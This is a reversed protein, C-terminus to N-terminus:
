HGVMLQPLGDTPHSNTTHSTTNHTVNHQTLNQQPHGDTTHPQTTHRQTTHSHIPAGVCCEINKTHKENYQQYISLFVMLVSPKKAKIVVSIKKRIM